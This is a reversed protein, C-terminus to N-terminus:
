ELHNKFYDIVHDQFERNTTYGLESKIKLLYPHPAFHPVTIVYGELDMSAVKKAPMQGTNKAGYVGSFVTSNAVQSKQIIKGDLSEQSFAFNIEFEEVEGSLINKAKSKKKASINIKKGEIQANYEGKQFHVALFSTYFEGVGGINLSKSLLYLTDGRFFVSRTSKSTFSNGLREGNLIINQFYNTPMCFGVRPEFLPSSIKFPLNVTTLFNGAISKMENLKEKTTKLIQMDQNMTEQFIEQYQTSNGVKQCIQCVYSFVWLM